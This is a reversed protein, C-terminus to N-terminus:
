EFIGHILTKGLGNYFASADMREKGEFQCQTIVVYGNLCAIKLGKEFAVFEGPIHDHIESIKFAKILKLKKGNIVGHGIPWPSLGRIHNYVTNVDRRFSVFEEEPIINYAFSVQSEDQPFSPVDDKLLDPLKTKLLSAGAVKLKDHLSGVDDDETIAVEVSDIRNGADMQKVMRMLTVGTQTEGNILVKHIPAGGRYKPLLSAHVNVSGFRPAELISTPIFQGYACTVILDLDLNQITEILEKIKFPQYVPINHETALKKVPTATLIQKRGVPKDPQSVVGIVEVDSELLCQLISVAFEPTGMFLVRNKM